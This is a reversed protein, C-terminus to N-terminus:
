ALRHHGGKGRPEGGPGATLGGQHGGGLHQRLLVPARQGGKQTRGPDPNAQEGSPQSLLLLPLGPLGQGGSLDIQDDAGM